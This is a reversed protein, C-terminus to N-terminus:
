KLLDGACPTKAIFDRHAQVLTGREIGMKEAAKDLRREGDRCQETALLEMGFYLIAEAADDFSNNVAYELDPRARDYDGKELRIKGRALYAKPPVDDAWGAFGLKTFIPEYYPILRYGNKYHYLKRGGAIAHDLDALAGAEDGAALRAQGREIYADGFDPDLVIAQDYDAIAERYDKMKMRVEARFYIDGPRDDVGLTLAHSLDDLAGPLDGAEIRGFSRWVYAEAYKPFTAVAKDYAALAGPADKGILKRAVLEMYAQALALGAFKGAAIKETLAQIDDDNDAAVPIARLAIVLALVLAVVWRVM